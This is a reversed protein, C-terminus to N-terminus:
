RSIRNMVWLILRGNVTEPVHQTPIDEFAIEGRRLQGGDNRGRLFADNQTFGHFAPSNTVYGRLVGQVYSDVTSAREQVAAVAQKLTRVSYPFRWWYWLSRSLAWGPLLPVMLLHGLVKGAEIISSFSSQLPEAPKTLKACAGCQGQYRKSTAPLIMAGCTQCAVRDNM